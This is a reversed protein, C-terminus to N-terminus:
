RPAGGRDMASRLTDAFDKGGIGPKAAQELEQLNKRIDRLATNIQRDIDQLRRDIHTSTLPTLEMMRECLANCVAHVSFPGPVVIGIAGIRLTRATKM